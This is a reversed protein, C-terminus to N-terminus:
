RIMPSSFAEVVTLAVFPVFARMLIMFIVVGTSGRYLGLRASMPFSSLRERSSCLASPERNVLDLM